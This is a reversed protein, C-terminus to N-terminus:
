TEQLVAGTDAISCCLVGYITARQSVWTSRGFFGLLATGDVFWSSRADICTNDRRTGNMEKRRM